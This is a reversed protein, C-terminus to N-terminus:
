AGGAGGAAVPVVPTAQPIYDEDAGPVSYDYPWRYVIPAESGWNGHPPPSATTWELTNAHWPNQEARPGRVLSWFVNGIFLLQAAGLGFASLSIFVELPQTRSLFPYFGTEYLRRSNGMLGLFHMPFFTAYIGLFTLAFHVRGLRENMMRGFMKPFWYYVGAFIAFLAASAMVFHFHAVVFYTDHLYIDVPAAAFFIGSLGGTVFLSVFGIAFCMASTFRIRGQWLTTVWNFTKVASPVAIAMTSGIFASGLLPSMGSVFMHHGWVLFSLFAIASLSLVMARYGFIPKRSFVSLIDSAIGMPTLIVIYVEPHGFFWFLHQWLLPSGGQHSLVEGAVVLHSPEFFSTGGVRDLLLMGLAAMLVPFTLFALVATLFMGWVTLPLRGMSMGRTRLTLTTTLINLSGFLSSALLILLSIIWLTQGLGSGPAAQPVASLPAYAVWGNGAPGGPVFFSALLVLIAPVLTWYSLMNLFPFAMDRAGILLPLLFNGFAGPLISTLFFFIMITGHMTVAALYSAPDLVGNDPWGLHLRMLMALAGGLLAMFLTTFLYQKGIMKHDLSFIYHRWFSEYETPLEGAPVDRVVTSM